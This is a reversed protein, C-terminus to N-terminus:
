KEGYYNKKILIDPKIDRKAVCGIIKNYYEPKLGVGPRKIGLNKKTFKDGKKIMALSVLSKRVTKLLKSESVTPKKDSLGLIPEVLRIAKVMAKLEAPELSAAHDPGPMNKDLTFHKEIVCAGLTAAMIPAQIGRTHDSYGILVSLKKKMILMARLNVENFLTPYNTTCHLAIIENNGTKKIINIASQVERITAMGTGLIMPKNFKAAYELVPLNTLDGSGFKFVPIKLRQLFDVSNFSGHPTSLFIIKKDRCRKILPRYFNEPLELKKLMELQSQRVGINKKQYAAMKGANTVVDDAKFTQFKVADAGAAAAANVLKLATKLDGNHNVGAEAIIFVYNNQGIFKNKIKIGKEM